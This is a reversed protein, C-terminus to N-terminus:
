WYGNRRKSRCHLENPENAGQRKAPVAYGGYWQEKVNSEKTNGPVLLVNRCGGRSAPGGHSGVANPDGIGVGPPPIKM